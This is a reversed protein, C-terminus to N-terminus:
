PQHNVQFFEQLVQCTFLGKLCHSFISGLEVPKGLNWGDLSPHADSFWNRTTKKQQRQPCVQERLWQLLFCGTRFHVLNSFCVGPPTGKDCTRNGHKNKGCIPGVCLGLYPTDLTKKHVQRFNASTNTQKKALFSRKQPFSNQVVVMQEVTNIEEQICYEREIYIKAHIHRYTYVNM